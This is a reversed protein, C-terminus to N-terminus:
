FAELVERMRHLRLRREVPDVWREALVPLSQRQLSLLALERTEAEIKGEFLLQGFALAIAAEDRLWMGHRDQELLTAVREPELADWHDDDVDWAPLLEELFEAPELDPEEERARRYFELTDAGGDNGFPSNDDTCDWFWPERLAERAQPHANEPCLDWLDDTDDVDAAGPM